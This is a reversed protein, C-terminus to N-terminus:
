YLKHYHFYSSKIQKILDFDVKLEFSTFRSTSVKWNLHFSKLLEVISDILVLYNHRSFESLESIDLKAMIQYHRFVLYVRLSWMIWLWISLYIYIYQWNVTNKVRVHGVKSITPIKEVTVMKHCSHTMLRFISRGSDVNWWLLGIFGIKLPEEVCPWSVSGTKFWCKSANHAPQCCETKTLEYIRLFIM